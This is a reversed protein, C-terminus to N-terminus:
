NKPFWKEYDMIKCVPLYDTSGDRNFRIPAWYADGIRKMIFADSIAYEGKKNYVNVEVQEYRAQLVFQAIWTEPLKRIDILSIKTEVLDTGEITEPEGMMTFPGIMQKLEEAEDVADPDILPETGFAIYNYADFSLQITQILDKNNM